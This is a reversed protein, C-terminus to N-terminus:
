HAKNFHSPPPPPAVGLYQAKALRFAEQVDLADVNFLSPERLQPKHSPLAVITTTAAARPPTDNKNKNNNNNIRTVVMRVLVTLGLAEMTPAFLLIHHQQQWLLAYLAARAAYFAYPQSTHHVHLAALAFAPWLWELPKPLCCAATTIAPGVWWWWWELPVTTIRGLSVQTACTVYLLLLEEEAQFLGLCACAVVLALPVLGGGCLYCVTVCALVRAQTSPKFQQLWWEYWDYVVATATLLLLPETSSTQQQQPPEEEEEETPPQPIDIQWTSSPETEHGEM